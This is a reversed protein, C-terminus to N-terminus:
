ANSVGPPQEIRTRAGDLVRAAVQVLVEAQAKTADPLDGPYRGVVAWPNLTAIDALDIGHDDPLLSALAVLDHTRPLVADQSALVAKLAKEAAQQAHFAVIRWGGQQYQLLTRASLLDEDAHQLWALAEQHIPDPQASM